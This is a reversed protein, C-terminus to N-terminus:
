DTTQRRHLDRERVAIAPRQCRGVSAVGASPKRPEDVRLLDLDRKAERGREVTRECDLAVAVGDKKAVTSRDHRLRSRGGDLDLRGSRDRDRVRVGRALPVHPLPSGVKALAVDAPYALVAQLDPGPEDRPALRQM